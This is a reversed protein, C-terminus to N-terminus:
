TLEVTVTVVTGSGKSNIAWVSLHYLYGKIVHNFTASRSSASLLATFGVTGQDDPGDRSIRYNTIPAGGTYLPADWLIRATLNSPCCTNFTSTVDAPGSPPTAPTKVLGSAAPSTGDANSATVSVTYTTYPKVHKFTYSLTTAPVTVPSGSQNYVDKGSRTVTYETPAGTAPAQWTLTVSTDFAVTGASLAAPNLPRSPAVSPTATAPVAVLGWGVCTLIAALVAVRKRM